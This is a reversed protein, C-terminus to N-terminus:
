NVNCVFPKSGIIYIVNETDDSIYKTYDYNISISETNATLTLAQGMDDAAIVVSRGYVPIDNYYQQMRYYTDDDITNVNNIKLEKEADTIGLLDAVSQAAKIADDESKIIVDTFGADLCIYKNDLDNTSLSFYFVLGGITGSILISVACICAIIKTRRKKKDKKTKTKTKAKSEVINEAKNENDKETVAYGCKPCFKHTEKIETGCEPCRM